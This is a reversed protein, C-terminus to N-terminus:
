TEFDRAFKEQEAELSLEHIEEQKLKRPTMYDAGYSVTLIEDYRASIMVEIKGEFPIIEFTDMVGAPLTMHIGVYQDNARHILTRNGPFRQLNATARKLRWSMPFLNGLWVVANLIFKKLGKYLGHRNSLAQEEKTRTFM